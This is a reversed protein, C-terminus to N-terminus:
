IIFENHGDKINPKFYLYLGIGTNATFCVGIFIVMGIVPMNNMGFAGVFPGVIFMLFINIALAIIGLKKFFLYFFECGFFGLFMAYLLAYLKKRPKFNMDDVDLSTTIEVTDSTVGEFPKEVGCIPCRDKNFKDIRSKCNKCIPM